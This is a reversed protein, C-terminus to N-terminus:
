RAGALRKARACVAVTPERPMDDSADSNNLALAAQALMNPTTAYCVESEDREVLLSSIM